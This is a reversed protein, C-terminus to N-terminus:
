GADRLTWILLVGAALVAGLAMFGLGFGGTEGMWGLLAPTLGSGGIIGVPTTMGVAMARHERPYVRSIVAFAAPFFCATIAPQILVVAVLWPGWLVGLLGTTVASLCCFLTLALRPGLRDVLWGAGFVALPGALRSAALLDNASELDMFREDTLFLPMISYPGFSSGIALSFVASLVWFHRTKVFALAQGWNMPAGTFEGGRGLALFVVGIAVGSAGVCGLAWRWGMFVLLADAALPSVIFALGPALEHVALARGMDRPRALSMIAAIGSPLYLGGGMGFAVLAAQVSWLSECETLALLSAGMWLSALGICERHRLRSNVQGSFLLVLSYGMSIYLYLGGAQGHSINMDAEIVPMLPSLITRALFNLHFVGAVLALWPLARRFSQPENAYTM